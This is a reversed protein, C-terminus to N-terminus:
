QCISLLSSDQNYEIPHLSILTTITVNYIDRGFNSTTRSKQFNYTYENIRYVLNEREVLIEINKIKNLKNKAEETWENETVADKITLTQTNPKWVELAKIKKIQKEFAKGIPSYTCRALEIIIIISSMTINKVQFINM